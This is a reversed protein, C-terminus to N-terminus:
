TDRTIAAYAAVGADQSQISRGIGIM